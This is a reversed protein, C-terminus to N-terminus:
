GYEVAYPHREFRGAVREHRQLRDVQQGAHRLILAPFCVDRSGHRMQALRNVFEPVGLSLTLRTERQAKHEFAVLVV